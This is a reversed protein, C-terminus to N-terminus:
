ERPIPSRQSSGFVVLNVCCHNQQAQVKLVPPFRAAPADNIQFTVYTPIQPKLAKQLALCQVSAAGAFVWARRPVIGSESLTSTRSSRYIHTLQQYLLCLPFPGIKEPPDNSHETLTRAPLAATRPTAKAARVVTNGLSIWCIM